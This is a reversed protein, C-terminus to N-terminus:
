YLESPIVVVEVAEGGRNVVFRVKGASQLDTLLEKMKDPKTPARRNNVLKIVDGEAFGLSAFVGADRAFIEFSTQGTEPDQVPRMGIVDAVKSLTLRGDALAAPLEVDVNTDNYQEGIEVPQLGDSGIDGAARRRPPPVMGLDNLGQLFVSEAVGNRSIIARDPALQKLSVGSQIEDGVLYSEGPGNGTSIFASGTGDSEAWLGLLTIDLTTEAVDELLFEQYAGAEVARGSFADYSSLIAYDGSLGTGLKLAQLPIVSTEEIPTIMVLVLRVLLWALLVVLAIEVLLPLRGFVGRTRSAGKAKFFSAASMNLGKQVRYIVGRM